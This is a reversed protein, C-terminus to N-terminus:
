LMLLYLGLLGSKEHGPRDLCQLSLSIVRIVSATLLAVTRTASHWCACFGCVFGPGGGDVSFEPGIGRGAHAPHGVMVFVICIIFSPCNPTGFMGSVGGGGGAGIM